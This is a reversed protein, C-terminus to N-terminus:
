SIPILQRLDRRAKRDPLREKLVALQRKREENEEKLDTIEMEYVKASKVENKM